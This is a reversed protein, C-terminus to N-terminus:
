NATPAPPAVLAPGGIGVAGPAASAQVAAITPMARLYPMPDVARGDVRVEFHLHSGTSRGTSGMRGIQDGAALHDGPRVQIRSLHGYRTSLGHGHDVEICNGYGGFWGARIVTGPAASRIPEGTQGAMDVGAHYAAGGSFPDYRGGFSSTYNFKAVPMRSPIAAAAQSLQQLKNWAQYLDQVKAQAQAQEPAPADAMPELPGGMGFSSARVFRHPDLGLTQIAHTASIYRARAASTATTVLALQHTELKALPALVQAANPALAALRPDPLAAAALQIPSRQGTLVAALQLQRAEIRQTTAQVTASLAAVGMHMRTVEAKVAALEATKAALETAAAANARDAHDLARVAYTGAAIIGLVSAAALYQKTSRALSRLGSNASPAAILDTNVAISATNVRRSGVRYHLNSRM